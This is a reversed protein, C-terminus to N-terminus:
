SHPEFQSPRTGTAGTGGFDGGANLSRYRQGSSAKLMRSAAFGLMLGGAAVAWPKRRAFDEVDSLIKDGDADTLYGGIKQAQEAARDAAKAPGDKGEERLKDGTTRLAGAFSGVEEGARTSRTDIEQQARSKAQEAAGSAKEKAADKAEGLKETAQDTAVEM